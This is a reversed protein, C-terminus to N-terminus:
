QAGMSSAGPLRGWAYRASGSALRWATRSSSRVRKAGKSAWPRSTIRISISIPAPRAYCRPTVSGWWTPSAPCAAAYRPPPLRADRGSGGGCLAQVSRRRYAEGLKPARKTRIMLSESTRATCMLPARCGPSRKAMRTCWRSCCRFCLDMLLHTITSRPRVWTARGTLL